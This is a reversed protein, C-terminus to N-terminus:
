VLKYARERDHRSERAVVRAQARVVTRELEYVLGREVDNQIRPARTEYGLDQGRTERAAEL